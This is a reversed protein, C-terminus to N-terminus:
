ARDRCKGCMEPTWGRRKMRDAIEAKMSSVWYSAKQTTNGTTLSDESVNEQLEIKTACLPCQATVMLFVRVEPATTNIKEM